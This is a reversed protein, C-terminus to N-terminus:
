RRVQLVSHRAVESTVGQANNIYITSAFALGESGGSRSMINSVIGMVTSTFLAFLVAAEFHTLSMKPM